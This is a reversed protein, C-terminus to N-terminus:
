GWSIVLQRVGVIHLSPIVDSGDRSLGVVRDFERLGRTIDLHHVFFESNSDFRVTSGDVSKSGGFVQALM